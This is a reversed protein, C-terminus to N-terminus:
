PRDRPRRGATWCDPCVDRSDRTRHWGQRSLRRRAETASKPFGPGCDESTCPGTRPDDVDCAISVYHSM